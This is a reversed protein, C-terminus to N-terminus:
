GIGEHAMSIALKLNDWPTDSAVTCDAGLIYADPATQLCASVETRIAEEPGNALVGKRDLGGMFPRDYMAAVQRATVTGTTLHLSCNVVKGPYDLFPELSAYPYEYDCIHLISFPCKEDIERMLVLDYPKVYNEFIAPDSFRPGEGGQTSHYFGDVGADICDRVFGLMSEAVIEIGKAAQEPDEELHDLMLSRPAGPVRGSQVACMFPSYLTLVVMAEAKAADVLGKVVELQGEYFEPGYCPMKRWDAPTKIEPRPPFPNEFQIKVFDMDTARFYELHKDIAAQGRHCSRAFHLFFAAPTYSRTANGELLAMIRERKNM